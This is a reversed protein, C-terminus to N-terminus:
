PLTYNRIENCSSTREDEEACASVVNSSQPISISPRLLRLTNVAKQRMLFINM